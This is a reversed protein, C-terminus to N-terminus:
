KLYIIELGFEKAKEHEWKAGYSSEWNPLFFLSSVMGSKLIPMYFDTLISELYGDPALKEKLKRMPKEFPTQDFINLKKEQLQIITKNFINLNAEISGLGGTAIPGCVQMLPKEMRDIIKEAIKYLDSISEAKELDQWDKEEWYRKTIESFEM